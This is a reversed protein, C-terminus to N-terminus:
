RFSIPLRSESRLIVHLWLLTLVAGFDQLPVKSSPIHHDSMCTHIITINIWGYKMHLKSILMTIIYKNASIACFKEWSVTQVHVIYRLFYYYSAVFGQGWAIQASKPPPYRMRYFFRLFYGSNEPCTRVMISWPSLMYLGRLPPFGNASCHLLSFFCPVSNDGSTPAWCPRISTRLAVSPVNLRIGALHTQLRPSHNVLVCRKGLVVDLFIFLLTDQVKWFQGFVLSFSFIALWVSLATSVQIRGLSIKRWENIFHLYICSPLKLNDPSKPPLIFQM